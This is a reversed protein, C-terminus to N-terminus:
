CRAPSSACAGHRRPPSCPTSRPRTCRRTSWRRRRATSRAARRRLVGGPRPCAREAHRAEAPFTYRELWDLLESGYSAIVDLQASHVHSDVFGPLVLRGGHDHRVWTDDPAEAQVGAMRGGEVLLWHGPRFRVSGEAVVDGWAPAAAFDLLDGRIAFRGDRAAAPTAPVAGPAAPGVRGLPSNLAEAAEEKGPWPGQTM